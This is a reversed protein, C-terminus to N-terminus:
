KWLETEQDPHSAQGSRGRAGSNLLELYRKFIMRVTEAEAEVIVLKKNETAYGLPVPGGM